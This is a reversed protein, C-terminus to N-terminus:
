GPGTRRTLALGCATAQRAKVRRGRGLSRCSDLSRPLVLARPQEDFPPSFGCTL